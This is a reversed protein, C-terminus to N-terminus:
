QAVTVPSGDRLDLPPATVVLEKASLGSLIETWPGQSEGRTVMRLHAHDGEDVFVRDLAGFTTLASTPVVLRSRVGSAFGVRAFTGARLAGVDPPLDIKVLLARSAVDVTPVIEGVTASVSRGLSDIEVSVADGLKVSSAKSEEVAAEVRMTGEDALVLLPLGPSAFAGPDVHRELVLGAFPAVIGAYGLAAQTEGLAARSEDIRSSVSRVRSRAAQEQAVAGKWRAEADDFQQQAIAKEDLLAKARDYSSKAVRAAVAAAELASEAEAKAENSAELGARARAVTARVDNAELDVLPQGATVRDGPRVRVARVYGMTKSTVTATNRGRVTGSARYLVPLSEEHAPAVTVAVPPGEAIARHPEGGCAAFASALAAPVAVSLCHRM